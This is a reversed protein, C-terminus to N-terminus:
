PQAKAAIDWKEAKQFFVEVFMRTNTHKSHIKRRKM